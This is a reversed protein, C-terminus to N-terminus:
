WLIRQVEIRMEKQRQLPLHDAEARASTAASCRSLSPIIMTAERRLYGMAYIALALRFKEWTINRRPSRSALRERFSRPDAAFHHHMINTVTYRMRLVFPCVSSSIRASKINWLYTIYENMLERRLSDSSSKM